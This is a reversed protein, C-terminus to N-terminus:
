IKIIAGVAKKFDLGIPAMTTKLVIIFCALKASM